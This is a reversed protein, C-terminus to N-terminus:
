MAWPYAPLCASVIDARLNIGRARVCANILEAQEVSTTQRTGGGAELITYPSIAFAVHTIKLINDGYFLFSGTPYRINYGSYTSHPPKSLKKYIDQASLDEHSSLLGAYRLLECGYGSCDIGRRSNGGWVYPVGLFSEAYRILGDIHRTDQM